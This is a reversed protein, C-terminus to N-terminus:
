VLRRTALEVKIRTGGRTIELRYRAPKRFLERAGELGLDAAPRGDISVIEDDRRLGADAAPTKEAVSFIRIRSYDPGEGVLFTGSMDYEFAAKPGPYPELVLREHPYDFTVRCRRLLEGGVIGDPDGGAFVGVTDRSFIATPRAFSFSGIRLSDLRGIDGRTEGGAGGGVTATLMRRGPDLFGHRAAFPHFMVVTTRVGTDIVFRCPISKGGAPTIAGSAVALGTDLEIPVVTASPRPAYGAPDIIRLRRAQYDIEVVHRRLFDEGLLGDLRRGEFPAVHALSFVRLAPAGLTDGAVELTVDPTTAIGVSVGAGAGVHRRVEGGQELGLRDACEKAIVSGGSCGTDLIFWQPASGNIAVRVFPKNSTIEFPCEGGTGAPPAGAPAPTAALLAAVLTWKLQIPM